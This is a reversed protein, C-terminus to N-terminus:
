CGSQDKKSRKSMADFEFHCRLLYRDMCRKATAETKGHVCRAGRCIRGVFDEDAECTSAAPSLVRYSGKQVAQVLDVEFHQFHHLCPELHFRALKRGHCLSALVSYSQCVRRCSAAMELATAPKLWLGGRHLTHFFNVAGECHDVMASLVDKQWPEPPRSILSVGPRLLMGELLPGQLIVCRIWRVLLLMDSGKWRAYPFKDYRPWHMIEKTFMNMHHTVHGKWEHKCWAQFDRFAKTLMYVVEFSGGPDRWLKMDCALMVIASATFYGGLAQKYAHFPDRRWFSAPETSNCPIQLFPSPDDAPWANLLGLTSRWAAGVSTDAFSYGDFGALCEWCCGRNKALNRFSRDFHGTKVLAPQDGKCGLCVPYWRGNNAMIGTEMLGSIEKALMELFLEYVHEKQGTYMKKPLVSLLFRTMFTSGKSNHVQAEAIADAVDGQSAALLEAEAFRTVTAEGWLAQIAIVLVGTKRQGTGEDLHMFYPICQELKDGHSLFIEHNPYNSRFLTWFSHLLTGCSKRCFGGCLLSPFAKMLYTFWTTPSIFPVEQGGLDLREHTIPLCLGERRFLAHLDREANHMAKTNAAEAMAKLKKGGLGPDLEHVMASAMRKCKAAPVKAPILPPPEKLIGSNRVGDALSLALQRLTSSPDDRGPLVYSFPDLQEHCRLSTGMEDYAAPVAFSAFQQAWEQM